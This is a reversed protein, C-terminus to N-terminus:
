PNLCAHSLIPRKLPWQICNHSFFSLILSTDVYSPCLPSDQTSKAAWLMCPPSLPPYLSLGPLPGLPLRPTLGSCLHSGLHWVLALEGPTLSCM